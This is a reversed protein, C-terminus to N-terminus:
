IDTSFVQQKTKETLLLTYSRLYQIGQSYREILRAAFGNLNKSRVDCGRFGGANSSTIHDRALRRTCGFTVLLRFCRRKIMETPIQSFM